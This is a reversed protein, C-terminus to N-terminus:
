TLGETYNTLDQDTYGGIVFVMMRDDMSGLDPTTFIDIVQRKIEEENGECEEKTLRGM